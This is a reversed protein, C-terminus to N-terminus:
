PRLRSLVGTAARGAAHHTHAVHGAVLALVVIAVLLVAIVVALIVWPNGSGRRSKAPTLNAWLASDLGAPDPTSRASAGAAHAPRGPPAAPAGPAAFAPLETVIRQLQEVSTAEALEALRVQYEAPPLLGREAAHDLLVGYRNREEDTVAGPDPVPAAPGPGAVGPAVGPDPRPASRDTGDTSM